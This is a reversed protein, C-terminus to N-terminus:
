RRNLRARAEHMKVARHHLLITLVGCLLASVCFFALFWLALPGGLLQMSPNFLNLILLVIFVAAFVINCHALFMQFRKM